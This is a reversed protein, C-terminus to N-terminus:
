ICHVSSECAVSRRQSCEYSGLSSMFMMSLVQCNPSRLDWLRISHDLSASLFMDEQPSMELASVQKTHGKFYRIFKNDHFSMYRIADDVLTSAYIINNSKHTFRALKCGYKKSYSTSKLKGLKCDYLHLTDKSNSSLCFQGSFDFDLSFDSSTSSEPFVQAVQFSKIVSDNLSKEM